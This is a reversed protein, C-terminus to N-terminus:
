KTLKHQPRSTVPINRTHFDPCCCPCICLFRSETHPARPYKHKECLIPVAETSSAKHPCTFFEIHQVVYNGAIIWPKEDNKNWFASRRWLTRCSRENHPASPSRPACSCVPNTRHSPTGRISCRRDRYSSRWVQITQEGSFYRGWRKLESRRRAQSSWIFESLRCQVLVTCAFCLVDSKKHM